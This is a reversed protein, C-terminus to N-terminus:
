KIQIQKVGNEYYFAKDGVIDVYFTEMKPNWIGTNFTVIDKIEESYLNFSYLHLRLEEDESLYYLREGDYNVFYLDNLNDVLVKEEDSGLMKIYIMTERGGNGIDTYVVSKELCMVPWQFSMDNMLSGSVDNEAIIETEGSNVFVLSVKGDSKLDYALYGGAAITETLPKGAYVIQEILKGDSVYLESIYNKEPDYKVRKENLLETFAENVGSVLGTKPEINYVAYEKLGPMEPNNEMTILYDERIEVIQIGSCVKELLKGDKSIRYVMGNEERDNDPLFYIWQDYVSIGGRNNGDYICSVEGEGDIKYIGYFDTYYTNEGDGWTCRNYMGNMLESGEYLASESMVEDEIVRITEKVDENFTKYEDAKQLEKNGCGSLVSVGLLLGIVIKLKKM